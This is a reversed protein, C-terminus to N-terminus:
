SLDKGWQYTVLGLKLPVAASGAARAEHSDWIPAITGLSSAIALNLFDRRSSQSRSETANFELM